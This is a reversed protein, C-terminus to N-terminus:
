IATLAAVKSELEALDSLIAQTATANAKSPNSMKKLRFLAKSEPTIAKIEYGTDTATARFNATEVTKILTNM